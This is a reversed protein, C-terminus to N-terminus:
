KSFLFLTYLSHFLNILFGHLFEVVELLKIRRNGGNDGAKCSFFANVAAAAVFTGFFSLLTLHVIDLAIVAVVEIKVGQRATHSCKCRLGFRGQKGCLFDFLDDRPCTIGITKTGVALFAAAVVAHCNETAIFDVWFIQVDRSITGDAGDALIAADVGHNAFVIKRPNREEGFFGEFLNVVNSKANSGEGM